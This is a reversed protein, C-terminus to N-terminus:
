RGALRKNREAPTETKGIGYDAEAFHQRLPGRGHGGILGHLGGAPVDMSVRWCGGPLGQLVKMESQDDIVACVLKAM